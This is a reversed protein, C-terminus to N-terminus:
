NIENGKIIKFLALIKLVSPNTSLLFREVLTRITNTMFM